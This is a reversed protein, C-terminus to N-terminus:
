WVSTEVGDHAIRRSGKQPKISDGGLWVQSLHDSVSAPQTGRSMNYSHWQWVAPRERARSSFRFVAGLLLRQSHWGATHGCLNIASPAPAASKISPLVRASAASTTCQGGQFHVLDIKGIAGGGSRADRVYLLFALWDYLQRRAGGAPPPSNAACTNISQEPTFSKISLRALSFM